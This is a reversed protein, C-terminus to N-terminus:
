TPAIEFVNKLSSITCNFIDVDKLKKNNNYLGSARRIFMNRAYSTRSRPVSFLHKSRCQREIKRPVRIQIDQLLSPADLHNHIIKYLLVSDVCDRRCELSQMNHRILSEFYDNYENGTIFDLSRLFKKQLREIRNIHVSYFPNWVACAFELRSRVYSNYLIKLTLPNRFPKGVRLIFGLQKFSKGLISDIHPIFSLKDDLIVGLDRVEKVRVLDKNCLRYNFISSEKKRSFSIINCKDPNLFLHNERCYAEFKSLDRQLLERDSSSRIVRYIKADDAYLLINSNAFLKVIDNIYLIFLLPGLHSGQPVGSSICKSRSAFGSVVVSQTRNEVYSKVWRFLDGHIGLEWLKCLLTYHCIKDFAKSFDTYVADVSFGDDLAKLIVSTFTLLNTDVSRGKYFGHQHPVIYHRLVAALQDTVIKELLKSFQCLKSIPRYKEIDRSTPGKPVPTIWAQKWIAPVSGEKISQKFIMTIPVALSRYCSKIFLPHIGDPGAGKNINVSKLYIKVIYENIEITQIDLLPSTPETLNNIDSSTKGYVEFVSHFHNNFLNCIQEGDSTVVDKYSM